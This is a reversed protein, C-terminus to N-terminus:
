KKCCMFMVILLTLNFPFSYVFFYNLSWCLLHCEASTVSQINVSIMSVSLMGVSLMSVNLMYVSMISVSQMKVSLM